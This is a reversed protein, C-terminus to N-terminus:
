QGQLWLSANMIRAAFDDLDAPIRWDSQVRVFAGGTGTDAVIAFLEVGDVLETDTRRVGVDSSEVTIM